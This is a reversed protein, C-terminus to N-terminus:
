RFSVKSFRGPAWSLWGCCPLLIWRQLLYCDPNTSVEASSWTVLQLGLSCCALPIIHCASIDSILPHSPPLGSCALTRRDTLSCLHFVSLEIRSSFSRSSSLSSSSTHHSDTHRRWYLIGALRQTEDEASQSLLGDEVDLGDGAVTLSLSPGFRWRCQPLSVYSIDQRLM